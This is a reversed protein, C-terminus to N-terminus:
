DANGADGKARLADGRGLVFDWLGWPNTSLLCAAIVMLLPNSFDVITQSEGEIKLFSLVLVAVLALFPTAVVHALHMWTGNAQYTSTRLYWGIRTIKTLLVGFLGWAWVEVLRWPWTNWFFREVPKRLGDVASRILGQLDDLDTADAARRYTIVGVVLADLEDGLATRLGDVGRKAKRVDDQRAVLAESTAAELTTPVAELAEILAAYKQDALRMTAQHANLYSVALVGLLVSFVILMIGGLVPAIPGERPLIRLELPHTFKGPGFSVVSSRGREHLLVLELEKSEDVGPITFDGDDNTLVANTVSGNTYRLVAVEVRGSQDAPLGTQWYLTGSVDIAM